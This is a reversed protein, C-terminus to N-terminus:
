RRESLNRTEAAEADPTEALLRTTGEPALAQAPPEREDLERTARRAFARPAESSSLPADSYAPNLTRYMRRLGSFLGVWALAGLAAAAWAFLRARGLWDVWAAVAALTAALFLLAGITTLQFSACTGATVRLVEFESPEDRGAPAGCRRCFRSGAAALEGCAVCSARGARLAALAVVAEAERTLTQRGGSSLLPHKLRYFFTVRASGASAPNVAVSLAVPYDLVNNSTGIRAALGRAGRRAEVPERGVVHYGLTELAEGLRAAASEPEGALVRTLYHEAAGTTSSSSESPSTSSSAPSAPSSAAGTATTEASLSEVPTEDV